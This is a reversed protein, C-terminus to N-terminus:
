PMNGGGGGGGCVNGCSDMRCGRLEAFAENEMPNIGCEEACAMGGNGEGICANFCSCGEDSECLM